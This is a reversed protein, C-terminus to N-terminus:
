REIPVMHPGTAPLRYVYSLFKKFTDFFPWRSLLCICKNAHVSKEKSTVSTLDLGLQQEQQANLDEKSYTEYFIVASGYVQFCCM